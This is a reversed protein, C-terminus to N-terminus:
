TRTKLRTTSSRMLNDILGLLSHAKQFHTISGRAILHSIWVIINSSYELLTDPNKRM